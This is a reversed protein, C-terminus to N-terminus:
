LSVVFLRPKHDDYKIVIDQYALQYVKYEDPSDPDIEPEEYAQCNLSRTNLVNADTDISIVGFLQRGCDTIVKAEPHCNRYNYLM